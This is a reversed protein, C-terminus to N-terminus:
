RRHRQNHRAYVGDVCAKGRALALELAVSEEKPRPGVSSLRLRDVGFSAHGLMLNPGFIFVGAAPSRLGFKIRTECLTHYQGRNVVGFLVSSLPVRASHNKLIMRRCLIQVRAVRVYPELSEPRRHQYVLLKLVM